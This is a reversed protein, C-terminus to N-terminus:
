QIMSSTLYRSNLDDLQLQAQTTQVTDTKGFFSLWADLTPDIFRLQERAERVSSEFGSILKNGDPGILQQLATREAGRAVEYRRIQQRQKDSYQDLTINRINRYSRFYDKSIQWYLREMPTWDLQIRTILQERQATNLTDLLIDIKAYYTEFDYGYRGSEWDWIYDPKLEYYYWLLEQDPGYTPTVIGRSRLLEEREELTKPVDVYAPSEGLVRIADSLGAQITARMSLWQDPGIEGDVWQRNNEVMSPRVLEGDEYVGILRAENYIKELTQYYDKIKVDLAQWGSPFLSASVGQWRRYTEWEYLLKQQLIDLRYYDSLRKGTTPYLRDIREQTAVPVGIAEEISLRMEKRIENYEQPRIRFLGTQQMLIGKIGNAKNTAHLWLKEEEDTLAQGSQKKRWIEDADYGMSGLTLMTQFDRFRDPYIFDLVKGIHEPSLARLASLGSQFIAPTVESLEPKGGATAGYLVIPAMVHIGPFFGLRSLYDIQEMGPIADYYEPFDRLYMSRLGGLWEGGRLPNLQLDTFPIPIYGEDSYETWRALNTPTGPTRLWTRPIWRWRFLEYNAFPMVARVGEEVMNSSEYTPYSLSHQERATTLAAEKRSFWAERKSKIAKYKATEPGASALVEDKLQRGRDYSVSKTAFGASKLPGEASASESVVVRVGRDVAAKAEAILAASDEARWGGVRAGSYRNATQAYPPDLYIVDGPKAQRISTIWSDPTAQNVEVGKAASVAEQLQTRHTSTFRMSDNVSMTSQILGTKTNYSVNHFASHRSIVYWHAASDLESLGGANFRDRITTATEKTLKGDFEDYLGEVRAIFEDGQTSAVKWMRVIDPNADQAVIRGALNGTQKMRLPVAGSGFFPDILNGTVKGIEEAVKDAIQQKGGAYYFLRPATPLADTSYQPLQELEDAIKNVYSNWKIVDTESLKTTNHLRHLEQRIDELQLVTPSDPTLTTPEIGLNRWLQDYVNGIEDATFGLDTASKGFQQAYVDAQNQAYLIFEERPRVTIHQQVRTLGRYLDDGTVGFLYALHNPTLKDVIDPVFSPTYVSQGTSTLFNRRAMLEVARIPQEAAFYQNWSDNKAASQKDWFAKNRSRSPTASIEAEIRSNRTRVELINNLRRRTAADLDSLRALQPESLISGVGQRFEAELRRGFAEAAEESAEGMAHAAEHFFDGATFNPNLQMIRESEIFRASFQGQVGRRTISESIMIRRLNLDTGEPLFTALSDLRTRMEPTISRHFQTEGWSFVPRASVASGYGKLQQFLKGLEEDAAVLFEDLQKASGVEFMDRARPTDLQQKRLETIRRYYGIQDGIADMMATIDELDSMFEQLNAPSSTTYAAAKEKLIDIQNTLSAISREREGALHAAMREDISDAGRAFMSGDLIEATVQSKANTSVETAKAMTKGIEKSIQRRGLEFVDMNAHNRVAEPSVTMDQLLTRKLDKVDAASFTYIGLLTEDNADLIAIFANMEDPAQDALAKMYHVQYDWAVQISNLSGWMDYMDQMSGIYYAKGDINITKGVNTGGLFPLKEPITVSRTVFPVRGGQFVTTQGTTKDVMAEALRIDGREFMILEYPANSLGSFLRNTEAVGGFRRPYLIEAGGLWSRQMNSFFNSPGFNMFLLNMRAFPQVIRRELAMVESGYFIRDAVRSHWSASRGAQEMHKTLPSSLNSYRTSQMHEFVNILVEKPNKGKAAGITDKIIKNKLSSLRTALREVTDETAVTGTHGLIKGATVRPGIGSNFMGLIDTNVNALRVTDFEVTDAVVRKTLNKAAADDVYKFELLQSGARVSLDTGELPNDVAARVMIEIDDQLTKVTLGVMNRTGPHLRHIVASVDMMGKRAFDRSMVSYTRPITYGAGTLWFIGKVPSLAINLGRRFVYDAGAAYGNEFSTVLTGFGRGASQLGVKGMGKGITRAALGAMGFGVYTTPDFATEIAMKVYWPGEWENFALTYASWSSEGMSVYYNHLRALSSVEDDARSSFLRHIGVITSAALPRPLMNFYKELTDVTAMMPQVLLLKGFEIPTLSPDDPLVLGARLLNIRDVEVAWASSRDRLFEDIEQRQEDELDIQALLDRMEAVTLGEPLSGVQPQFTKALEEVTLNHVARLELPPATLVEDIMKKQAEAIDGDFGEPLVNTLFRMSEFVRSLWQNDGPQPQDNPVFQLIDEPKLISFTPSSLYSPMTQLIELRWEVSKLQQAALDVDAKARELDAPDRSGLIIDGIDTLIPIRPGIDRLGFLGQGTLRQERQQAGILQKQAQYNQLGLAQVEKNFGPFVEEPTAPGPLKPRGNTPSDIPQNNQIV